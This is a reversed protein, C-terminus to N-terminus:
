IEQLDGEDHGNRANEPGPELPDDEACVLVHLALLLLSRSRLVNLMVVEIDIERIMLNMQVRM